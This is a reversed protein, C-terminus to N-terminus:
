KSIHDSYNDSYKPSRPRSQNRHPGRPWEWVIPVSILVVAVMAWSSAPSRQGSDTRAERLKSGALQRARLPIWVFWCVAATLGVGYLKGNAYGEADIALNAVVSSLAYLTSASLLHLYISRWPAPVRLSLFGLALILAWNKHECLPPDLFESRLWPRQSVIPVSLGPLLFSLELFDAAASRKVDILRCNRPWVTARLMAKHKEFSVAFAKVM